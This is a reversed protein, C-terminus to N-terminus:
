IAVVTQFAMRRWRARSFLRKEESMVALPRKALLFTQSEAM